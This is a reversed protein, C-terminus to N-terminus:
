GSTIRASRGDWRQGDWFWLLEADNPDPYWGPAAAADREAMWAQGERRLAAQDARQGRRMMKTQKVLQRHNAWDYYGM